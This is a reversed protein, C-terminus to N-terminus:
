LRNQLFDTDDATENMLLEHRKAMNDDTHHDSSALLTIKESMTATETVPATYINRRKM